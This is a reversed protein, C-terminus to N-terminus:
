GRDRDKHPKDGGKGQSSRGTPTEVDAVLGSEDYWNGRYECRWHHRNFVRDDLCRAGDVHVVRDGDELVAVVQMPTLGSAVFLLRPVSLSMLRKAGAVVPPALDSAGSRQADSGQAKSGMAILGKGGPKMDEWASHFRWIGFAFMCPVAIAGIIVIPRKLMNARGDVKTEDGHGGKAESMTQSKYLSYVEKKYTGTLFRLRKNVNPTCGTVGGYYIDVRYAKSMGLYGLKHSVFTNEVLRRAFAAINALDQVVLIIQTSNNQEDVMHRHEALLAKHEPPVKEATIGQPWLKWCEDIIIIRGPKVVDHWSEPHAIWQDIKFEIVEGPYGLDSVRDANM